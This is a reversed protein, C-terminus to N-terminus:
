AHAREAEIRAQIENVLGDRNKRTIEILEIDDRNKIQEILETGKQAITALIPTPGALLEVLRAAFKRSLLEMKGVEDIVYLEVATERPDLEPLVLAEFQDLHVSYRGVTPPKSGLSALNGERGSLTVIRFGVRQGRQREELTYFGACKVTELGEVVARLLTTKGVGPAGTLFLRLARKKRNMAEIM